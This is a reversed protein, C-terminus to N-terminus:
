LCLQDLSLGTPQRHIEPTPTPSPPESASCVCSPQAGECACSVPASVVHAHFSAGRVSGWGQAAARGAEGDLLTVMQGQARKQNM